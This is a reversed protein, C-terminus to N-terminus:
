MFDDYTMDYQAEESYDKVADTAMNHLKAGKKKKSKAPKATKIKENAMVSLTSSLRKLDDAELGASVDRFLNEIFYIYHESREFELIKDKLSKEFEDFEERSVPHCGDLSGSENPEPTVGILDKSIQFDADEQLKQLGLKEELAEEPTLGAAAKAKEALEKQKQAEKQAIKEKLSIKKKVQVAKVTADSEPEGNKQEDEEEVDWADKVDDDEDEGEWKNTVAPVSFTPEYDDAEWEAESM